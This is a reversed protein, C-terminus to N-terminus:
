DDEYPYDDSYDYTASPDFDLPLFEHMRDDADYPYGNDYVLDAIIDQSCRPCAAPAISGHITFRGCHPCDITYCNM